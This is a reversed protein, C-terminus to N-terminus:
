KGESKKYQEITQTVKSDSKMNVFYLVQDRAILIEDNPGYIENGLKILQLSNQSTQTSKLDEATEEGESESKQVYFVDKLKMYDGDVVALKGFYSEGSTLVIAQYKTTDIASSVSNLRSVVLWIMAGVLALAAIIALITGLKKGSKQKPEMPLRHSTTPAATPRDTSSSAQASSSVPEPRTTASRRDTPKPSNFLGRDM